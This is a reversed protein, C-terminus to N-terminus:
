PHLMPAAADPACCRPRPMPWARSMPRAANPARCRLRPKPRAACPSICHDFFECDSLYREYLPFRKWSLGEVKMEGAQINKYDCLAQRRQGRLRHAVVKAELEAAITDADRDREAVIYKETCKPPMGKGRISRRQRQAQPKLRFSGHVNGVFLHTLIGKSTNM